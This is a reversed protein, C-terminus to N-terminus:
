IVATAIPRNGKVENPWRKKGNAQKEVRYDRLFEITTAIAFSGGL